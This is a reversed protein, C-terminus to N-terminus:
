ARQGDAGRLAAAIRKLKGKILDHYDRNRAYVSITARDARALTALPDREPGYNMGLMVVSRSRPGSRRPSRAASPPPRSGRGDDGHHGDALFAGLREAAEPM